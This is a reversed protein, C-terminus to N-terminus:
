APARVAPSPVRRYYIRDVFPLDIYMRDPGVFTFSLGVHMPLELTVTDDDEQTVAEIPLVADGGMTLSKDSIDLEPGVPLKISMVDLREARWHGLIRAGDRKACGACALLLVALVVGAKLPRALM